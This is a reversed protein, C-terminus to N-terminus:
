EPLINELNSPIESLNIQAIFVYHKVQGYETVVPYNIDSPLDPVGGLRSNGVKSYDEKGALEILYTPKSTNEYTEVISQKFGLKKMKSIMQAKSQTSLIIAIIFFLIKM